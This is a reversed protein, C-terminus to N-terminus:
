EASNRLLHLRLLNLAQKAARDKVIRPHGATTGSRVLVEDPTALAYFYEAPTESRDAEPIPGIALGYDAAFQERCVSAGNEALSRGGQLIADSTDAAAVMGGRFIQVGEPLESLWHSLRGATGCEATAVTRNRQGLLRVVAHQLEDDEEGFVLEGLCDRITELTPDILRECAEESEAAATVRLTITAAHVTIGVSPDRGRRILDPLMSEVHSEGRGFCKIRRHRIVKPDPVLASLAPAVSGTWMEHMEAPVGPLAFMRCPRGSGHQVNMDVGPATGNPNPIAASGDPLMAQCRNTEPMTRGFRRFIEEIHDLQQQDLVLPADGVAALAERTLDDATPGLGGTIVVVDCREAAQRLVETIADLDDAVTAHYAVRIGLDELRQSLWQSNTDLRQGSTLEDGIAIVQARM